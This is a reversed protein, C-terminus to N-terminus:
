DETVGPIPSHGPLLNVVRFPNRIKLLVERMKDVETNSVDILPQLQVCLTELCLIRAHVLRALALVTVALRAFSASLFHRM